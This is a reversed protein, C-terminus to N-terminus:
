EPPLTRVHALGLGVWRDLDDDDAAADLDVRLWGAMERGRMVVRSARPDALLDQARAPDVRLMLGGRGSATVTLHGAVMFGLGGFMPKEVVDPEAALIERLRHVLDLDYAM